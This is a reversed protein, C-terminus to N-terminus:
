RCPLCRSTDGASVPKGWAKGVPPPDTRTERKYDGRGLGLGVGEGGEGGREEVGRGAGLM